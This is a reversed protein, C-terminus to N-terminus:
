ARDAILAVRVRSGVAASLLRAASGNRAAIQLYDDSCILALLGEAEAFTRSLGRIRAGGVKIELDGGRLDRSRINSVLNGFHDIFVIRGEVTDPSVVPPYANLCVVSDVPESLQEPPVGLALHAAAPAFVDRGHFTNSVPHRWYEARTLEYAACGDPLGVVVPQMFGGKGPAAPSWGPYSDGLVYTLLGNDPAVFRGGPTVVLLPRRSTGVGPDVVCVHVADPPFYRCATGIVFAGHPIDQPPVRHSIDVISLDPGISLAVGKMAGVYGGNDGFDTTLTLITSAM